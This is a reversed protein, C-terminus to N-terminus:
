SHEALYAQVDSLLTVGDAPEPTTSPKDLKHKRLYAAMHCFPAAARAAIADNLADTLRAGVDLKAEDSLVM